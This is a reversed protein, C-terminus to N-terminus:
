KDVKTADLEFIRLTELKEININGIIKKIRDKTEDLYNIQFLPFHNQLPNSFTKIAKEGHVAKTQILEKKYNKIEELLSTDVFLTQNEILFTAKQYTNQKKTNTIINIALLIEIPLAALFFKIQPLNPHAASSRKGGITIRYEKNYM